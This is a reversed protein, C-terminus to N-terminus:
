LQNNNRLLYLSAPLLELAIAEVIEFQEKYQLTPKVNDRLIEELEGPNDLFGWIRFTNEQDGTRTM